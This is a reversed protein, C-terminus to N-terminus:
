VEFYKSILKNVMNDRLLFQDWNSCDLSAFIKVTVSEIENLNENLVINSWLRIIIITDVAPQMEDLWDGSLTHCVPACHFM